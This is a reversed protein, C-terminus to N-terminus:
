GLNQTAGRASAPAAAALAARPERFAADVRSINDVNLTEAPNEIKLHGRYSLIGTEVDDKFDVRGTYDEFVGTGTGNVLPHQCRGHIEEVLSADAYKGTFKYTTEFTGKGVKEDGDWLEGIFVERGREQYVVPEADDSPSFKYEEVLTYWCGRLNGSTLSITLDGFNSYDYDDNKPKPCDDTFAPEGTEPDRVAVVVGEGSIQTAGQVGVPAALALVARPERFAPDLSGIDNVDLTEVASAFIDAALLTRHELSEVSLRTTRGRRSVTRRNGKSQFVNLISQIPRANMTMVRRSSISFVDDPPM